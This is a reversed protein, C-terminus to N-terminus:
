LFQSVTTQGLWLKGRWRTLTMRWLSAPKVRILTCTNVRNSFLQCSRRITIHSQYIAHDQSNVINLTKVQFMSNKVESSFYDIVHRVDPDTGTEGAVGSFGRSFGGTRAGGQFLVSIFM